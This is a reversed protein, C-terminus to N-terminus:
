PTVVGPKSPIQIAVSPTPVSGGHQSHSKLQDDLAGVFGKALAALMDVYDLIESATPVPSVKGTHACENRKSILDDLKSSLATAAWRSPDGSKNSVTPWFNKLGLREAMGKVVEPGPNAETDAFAEWLIQYSGPPSMASHLRAVIDERTPNGFPTTRGKRAAESAKTLVRGGGEFHGNRISDPLAGFTVGSRSLGDIFMRVLDKLFAEFYGTLLVVAGCQQTEHLGRIAPDSLAAGTNAVVHKVLARIRDLSTEFDALAQQM